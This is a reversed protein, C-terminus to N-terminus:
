YAAEGWETANPGGPKEDHFKKLWEAQTGPFAGLLRPRRTTASLGMDMDMNDSVTVEVCNGKRM